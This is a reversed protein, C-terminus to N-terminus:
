QIEAIIECESLYVMYKNGNEDVFLHREDIDEMYEYGEYALQRSIEGLKERQLNETSFVEVHVSFEGSALQVVEQIVYVKM